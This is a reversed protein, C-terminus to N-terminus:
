HRDSFIMRLDWSNIDLLPTPRDSLPEGGESTSRVLLGRRRETPDTRFGVDSLHQGLDQPMGLGWTRVVRHSLGTVTAKVLTAIAASDGAWDVIAIAGTRRSSMVCFASPHDGVAYVFRYSSRPDRYRWRFYIEDRVQHIREGGESAAALRTMVDAEPKSSFRIGNGTNHVNEELERLPGSNSSARFRDLTRRTTEKLRSLGEPSASSPKSASGSGIGDDDDPHSWILPEYHGVRKWGMTMISSVYNAPTASMNIVLPFGRQHLDDLAFRTLEEYIGRDREEQLVASEAACPILEPNPSHPMHWSTGFWGRMGVIADNRQAVHLIPESLYPNELYKWTLYARNFSLTGGFVQRRVDAIEELMAPEFARILYSM